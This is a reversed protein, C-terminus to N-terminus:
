NITLSVLPAAQSPAPSSTIAFTTTGVTTLNLTGSTSALTASDGLYHASISHTGVALPAVGNITASGNVVSVAPGLSTTGDLLQVQGNAGVSASVSITITYGPDAPVATPNFKGKSATIKTVTAVAGGGGGGSSSGSCGLTFSLICVLGLGLAARYRKRGPFFLLIGACIGSIASLGWWSKGSKSPSFGAAYLQLGALQASATLVASPAAVNLSLQGTAAATTSSDTIALPNPTCTVGPPLNATACTVNVTGPATTSGPAPTVTITSAGSSGAAVTIAGGSLTFNGGATPTVTLAVAPTSTSTAYNADGVYKATLNYTGAALTITTSATGSAGATASAGLGTVPASSIQTAGNLFTVTGTPGVSSNSTSAITASLTVPTAATVGTTPALTLATTTAASTITVTLTPSTSGNYSNDGAYTAVIQHSGAPLQIIQDELFGFNNLNASGFDLISGNDTLNINGTACPLTATLTGPCAGTAAGSVAVQLIYPAGYSASTIPTACQGTTASCGELTATTSSNEKNVTVTFSSTVSSAGFTGDGLFRAILPYGVGGPLLRTTITVTGNTLPFPGLAVGGNGATSSPNAIVSVFGTPTGTQGSGPAVAITFSANSGHAIPFTTTTTITTQSVKLNNQALTWAPILNAVNVSGLGTAMDYGASAMWAPTTGGKATAMVGFAGVATNSCNPSNGQCAVSINGKTTDYFVCTNALLQAPTLTSSNCVNAATKALTYLLYNPNGQRPTPVSVSAQSQNILAMIGAFAPTSASTGGVGQFNHTASTNSTALNCNTGPTPNFDSECIIYFSRNFGNSAFLSIDPLDRNTDGLGVQWSPKLAGTYVSSPGGSGAVIDTGTASPAACFAVSGATASRACTDNWPVEPIYSLASAPVPTPSTPTNATNWFSPITLSTQDFDTGGVAVNYPTSALGSVAIGLSAATENPAGSPPDCGASGNDGSSVFVSIGQAAAQQWLSNYFQNGAATLSTECQGYSESVIPAVNNDVVYIASLDVGDSLTSATSESTVFIINAGPAVAGAWEVDLLSETEDGPVIGPNAGNFIKTPDNVPLGFMSRFDRVDQLNIDSRGIIALPQGAGPTASQITSPVNYIKAFDAPGVGYFTGNSTTYTFLPTTEGTASDRQFTGLAHVHPQKRFNHLSVLGAVVPAIAAPIQPDALNAMHLEGKASVHHIETHFASRVQGANGSFEIATRGASVKIAQFGQKALWDSVTQLDADAPGFQKGFQGPTLWQHFNPSGPTHQDEMLQRLSNEQESSRQLLLLMRNMPQSDAVAGQDFEPRALPHVNGRLRVLQAEDIAQTIRAPVGPAQAVASAPKSQAQASPGSFALGAMSLLLTSRHFLQQLKM